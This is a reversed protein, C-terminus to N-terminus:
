TVAIHVRWTKGFKYATVGAGLRAVLIQGERRVARRCRARLALDSLQLIKAASSITMLGRPNTHEAM